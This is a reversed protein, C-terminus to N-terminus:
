HAKSIGHTGTLSIRLIFDYLKDVIVDSPFCKKSHSETFFIRRNMIQLDVVCTPHGEVKEMYKDHNDLGNKLCVPCILHSM